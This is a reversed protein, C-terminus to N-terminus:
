QGCDFVIDHFYHIEFSGNEEELWLRSSSLRTIKFRYTPGDHYEMVLYRNKDELRWGGGKSVYESGGLYTENFSSDRYFTLSQCKHSNVYSDTHDVESTLYKEIYWYSKVLRAKATIVSVWPGHEYKKCSFGTFIFLFIIALVTYKKM